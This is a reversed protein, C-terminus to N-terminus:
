LAFHGVFSSRCNPDNWRSNLGKGQFKHGLTYAPLADVGKSIPPYAVVENGCTHDGEDLPRTLIEALGGAWFFGKPAKPMGHAEHSGAASESTMMENGEVTLVLRTSVVNTVNKLRDGALAKAMSVLAAKQDTNARQDVIVVSRALEPKDESLTTSAQVAAAVCLGSVDVGDWSGRNVKWAAVAQNGTIFVEANSFCPGTYIDATRAEIYDGQIHNVPAPSPGAFLLAGCLAALSPSM